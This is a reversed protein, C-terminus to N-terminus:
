RHFWEPNLSQNLDMKAKKAWAKLHLIACCKLLIYRISKSM